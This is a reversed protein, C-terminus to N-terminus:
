CEGHGTSVPQEIARNENGSHSVILLSSNLPNLEWGIFSSPLVVEVHNIRLQHTIIQRKKTVAMRSEVSAATHTTHAIRKQTKALKQLTRVFVSLIQTNKHKQSNRYGGM